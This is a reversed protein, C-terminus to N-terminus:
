CQRDVSRRGDEHRVPTKKRWDESFFRGAVFSLSTLRLSANAAPTGSFDAYSMAGM